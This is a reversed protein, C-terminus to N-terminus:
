PNYRWKNLVNTKTPPNIKNRPVSTLLKECVEEISGSGLGDDSGVFNACYIEGGVSVGVGVGVEVFVRTGLRVGVCVRVRVSVLVAVIALGVIM